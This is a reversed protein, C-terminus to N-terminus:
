RTSCPSSSETSRCGAWSSAGAEKRKTRVTRRPRLRRRRRWLASLRLRVHERDLWHAAAKYTACLHAGELRGAAGVSATDVRACVFTDPARRQATSAASAIAEHKRAGM